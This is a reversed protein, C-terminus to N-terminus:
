DEIVIISGGGSPFDYDATNRINLMDPPFGAEILQTAGTSTNFSFDLNDPDNFPNASLTVWPYPSMDSVDINFGSIKTTNGGYYMNYILPQRRPQSNSWVTIDNYSVHNAVVGNTIDANVGLTCGYSICNFMDAKTFTYEYGIDCHSAVCGFLADEAVSFGTGCSKALCFALIRPNGLTSYGTGCNFARCGVLSRQNWSASISFGTSPCNRAICNVHVVNQTNSLFGSVGTRNNGDVEINCLIVQKTNDDSNNIIAISEFTSNKIIPRNEIPQFTRVTDYGIIRTFNIGNSDVTGNKPKFIGGSVNVSSSTLTYTGAKIYITNRNNHIEGAKGLSALAGGLAWTGGSSSTTGCSRDINAEGSTIGIIEYIGPTFGTGSAINIMNGIDASTFTYSGCNVRTSVSANINLDSGTYHPTDQQSRDTGATDRNFGGGNNDSGTTRVEWDVRLGIAM